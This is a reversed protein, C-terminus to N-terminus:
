DQGHERWESPTLGTARKFARRFTTDSNFGVRYVIYDVKEGQLLLEKAEEVRFRNVYDFFSSHMVDRMFYYFYSANTDFRQVLDGVCLDPSRYIKDKNM